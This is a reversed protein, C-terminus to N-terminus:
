WFPYAVAGHVIYSFSGSSDGANPKTTMVLILKSSIPVRYPVGVIAASSGEIFLTSNERNSGVYLYANALNATEIRLEIYAETDDRYKNEEVGIVWHCAEYSAAVRREIVM